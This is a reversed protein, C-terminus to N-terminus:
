LYAIAYEVLQLSPFLPLMQRFLNKYISMQEARMWYKQVPLIHEAPTLGSPADRISYHVSQGCVGASYVYDRYPCTYLADCVSQDKLLLKGQVVHVPIWQDEDTIKPYVRLPPDFYFNFYTLDSVKSRSECIWEFRIRRMFAASEHIKFGYISNTRNTLLFRNTALHQVDFILGFSNIILTWRHYFYGMRAFSLQSQAFLWKKTRKDIRLESKRTQIM